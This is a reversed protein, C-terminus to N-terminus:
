SKKTKRAWSLTILNEGYPASDDRILWGRPAHEGPLFMLCTSLPQSALFLKIFDDAIVYGTVTSGYSIQDGQWGITFFVEQGILTDFDPIKAAALIESRLKKTESYSHPTVHQTAFIATASTILMLTFLLYFKPNRFM